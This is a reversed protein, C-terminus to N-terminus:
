QSLNGSQHHSWINKKGKGSVPIFCKWEPEELWVRLALGQGSLAASVQVAPAMLVKEKGQFCGESISVLEAPLATFLVSGAGGGVPLLGGLRGWFYHLFFVLVM